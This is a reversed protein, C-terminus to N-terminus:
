PDEDNNVKRWHVEYEKASKFLPPYLKGDLKLRWESWEAVLGDSIMKLMEQERELHPKRELEAQRLVRDGHQVIAVFKSHHVEGRDLLTQMRGSHIFNHCFHCLPVAEVYTAVGRKYDITYLEHAELWQRSKAETKHVGCSLCHFETSKYTLLRTRNWWNTGYISRPNVGHLPKPINPHLLIDPRLPVPCPNRHPLKKLGKGKLTAALSLKSKSNSSSSESKPSSKKVLKKPSSKKPSAKKASKKAVKIGEPSEVLTVRGVKQTREQIEM